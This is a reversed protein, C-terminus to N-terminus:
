GTWGVLPHCSKCSSPFPRAWAGGVPGLSTRRGDPEIRCLLVRGEGDIELCEVPVPEIRWVVESRRARVEPAVIRRVPRMRRARM